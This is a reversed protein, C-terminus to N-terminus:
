AERWETKADLDPRPRDKPSVTPTGIHLFGAVFEHPALGLGTELFERDDAMWNTLWNVGWGSALTANLAALCVAGASLIQEFEPAKESPTPAAIVCLTVPALEFPEAARHLRDPDLGRAEGIRRTLAGMAASAAGELVIFRWPELKGHDPTRAAATLITRLTERDPGPGTLTKAIRSRRTLLFNLAAPDPAIAADPRPAAADQM